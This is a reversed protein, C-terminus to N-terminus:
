RLWDKAEEVASGCGTQCRMIFPCGVKGCVRQLYVWPSVIEDKRHSRPLRDDVPGVQSARARASQKRGLRGSGGVAKPEM